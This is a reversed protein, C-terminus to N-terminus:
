SKNASFLYRWWKQLNTEQKDTTDEISENSEKTVTTRSEDTKPLIIITEDPSKVGLRRRAELEKFSDTAYYYTLNQLESIDSKLTVIEEQLGEITQNTEYNKKISTGIMVITYIILAFTVLSRSVLRISEIHKTAM